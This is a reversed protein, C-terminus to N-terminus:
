DVHETDVKINLPLSNKRDKLNKENTTVAIRGIDSQFKFVIESQLVLFEIAVLIVLGRYPIRSYGQTSAASILKLTKFM